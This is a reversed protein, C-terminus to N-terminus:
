LIQPAICQLSTGAMMSRVPFSGPEALTRLIRGIQPSPVSPVALTTLLAAFIIIFSGLRWMRMNMQMHMNSRQPARKCTTVWTENYYGAIVAGSADTQACTYWGIMFFGCAVWHTVLLWFGVVTLVKLLPAFALADWRKMIRGLKFIRITKIVGFWKSAYPNTVTNALFRDFPVAAIFDVAFWTRLYNVVAMRFILIPFRKGGSDHYGCFMQFLVDLAFFVDLAIDFEPYIEILYATKLIEVTSTYVVCFIMFLESVAQPIQSVPNPIPTPDTRLPEPHLRQLCKLTLQQAIVKVTGGPHIVFRDIGKTKLDDRGFTPPLDIPDEWRSLSPRRTRNGYSASESLKRTRRAPTDGVGFAGAAVAQSVTSKVSGVSISSSSRRRVIYSRVSPPSSASPGSVSGIAAGEM